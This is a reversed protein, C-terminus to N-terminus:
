KNEKALRREHSRLMSTKFIGVIGSVIAAVASISLFVVITAFEKETMVRITEGTITITARFANLPIYFIRVIQLAGLLILVVAFKNNYNKIGESSLFAFLLFLLNYVISAGTIANYYYNGVDFNYLYVYYFVNFLISVYALIASTSNRTFRMRDRTLFRDNREM